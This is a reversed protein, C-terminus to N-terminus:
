CVNDFLVIEIIAVVVQQESIHKGIQLYISM